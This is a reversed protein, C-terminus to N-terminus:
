RKGVMPYCTFVQAFDVEWYPIYEYEPNTTIAFHLPQNAKPRLQQILDQPTSNLRAGRQPDMPGVVALLIPGYELAYRGQGYPDTGHYPTLKLAMPLTFAITDGPNWKRSIVAYSGPKGTAVSAGNVTIPMERAAWAPVRIRITSATPVSPSLRICVDPKYPFETIMQARLAAGGQQWTITSASFLDVYLGDKAVSYLYEPLSGFLRAGQGECCTNKCIPNDNGNPWGFRDKKRILNAHYTIGRSGIQNALGVNYIAKEMENVYREQRPDLLHFRQNYRVWFVSGCLEGTHSTLLYSKPPFVSAECIAMSGGVHEWNDHYLDWGGQAAALYKRDGTARYLDLYPELATILYNHPRDYPYQWIAAPDRRALQELWYNEQFYRQVVQLDEPKGVPTFYLRTNPTMGQVGFGARRLLEPLYPCTNFWDYYGRLLRFAKPNGAYGAEILGQTVWSRSYAGYESTFCTDPPFAMIYGNAERCDEIGDVVQDMRRRLEPDLTWRLTNGAGMLFRGANSGPLDLDWFAPPRRLGPPIPKGARMRFPRLLEDVSFSTLLYKINNAMVTKFLGNQLQVGTRPVEAPNAVPKWSSAPIVNGPNDTVVGEGQPRPTRTLLPKVLRRGASDTVSSGEAVDKGGSWVEMKSLAFRDGHSRTVTLRVYRGVVGAAKFVGVVDYPNPDDAATHDAIVRAKTFASDIAAEFRFRVLYAWASPPWNNDYQPFLKVADITRPQGLDIM